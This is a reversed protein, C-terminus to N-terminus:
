SIPNVDAIETWRTGYSKQIFTLLNKKDLINKNLQEAPHMMYKGLLSNINEINPENSFHELVIAETVKVALYASIRFRLAKEPQYTIYDKHIISHHPLQAKDPDTSQNDLERSMNQELSHLVYKLKGAQSWDAAEASEFTDMLKRFTQVAASNKVRPDELVTDVILKRVQKGLSNFIEAIPNVTDKIFKIIPKAPLGFVSLLLNINNESGGGEADSELHHILLNIMSYALDRKDFLCSVLPTAEPSKGYWMITNKKTLKEIEGPTTPLPTYISEYLTKILFRDPNNFGFIIDEDLASKGQPDKWALTWLLLETYNTHAFFDQATHLARGLSTLHEYNLRDEKTRPANRIFTSHDLRNPIHDNKVEDITLAIQNNSIKDGYEIRPKNENIDFHDMYSYNGFHSPVDSEEASIQKAKESIETPVSKERQMGGLIASKEQKWLENFLRQVAVDPKPAKENRPLDNAFLTAQNVDNAWSGRVLFPFYARPDGISNKGNLKKAANNCGYWLLRNHVHIDM